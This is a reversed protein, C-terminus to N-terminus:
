RGLQNELAQLSALCDMNSAPASRHQTGSRLNFELYCQMPEGKGPHGVSIDAIQAADITLPSFYSGAYRLTVARDAVEAEKFSGYQEKYTLLGFLLYFLCGLIFGTSPRIESKTGELSLTMLVTTVAVVLAGWSMSVLFAHSMQAEDSFQLLM